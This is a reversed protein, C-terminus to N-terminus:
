RQDHRSDAWVWYCDTCDLGGFIHKLFKMLFPKRKSIYKRDHFHILIAAAANGQTSFASAATARLHQLHPQYYHRMQEGCVHTTSVRACRRRSRNGTDIISPLRSAWLSLNHCATPSIHLHSHRHKTCSNCFLLFHTENNRATAIAAALTLVKDSIWQAICNCNETITKGSHPHQSVPTAGHWERWYQMQRKAPQRQTNVNNETTCKKMRRKPQWQGWPHLRTLPAYASKAWHLEIVPLTSASFLLNFLIWALQISDATSTFASSSFLNKEFAPSDVLRTCGFGNKHTWIQWAIFNARARQQQQWYINEMIKHDNFLRAQRQCAMHTPPHAWPHTFFIAYWKTSLSSFPWSHM